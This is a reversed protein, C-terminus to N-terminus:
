GNHLLGGLTFDESRSLDITRVGRGTERHQQWMSPPQVQEGSMFLIRAHHPIADRGKYACVRLYVKPKVLIKIMTKNNRKGNEGM